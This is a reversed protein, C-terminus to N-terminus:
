GVWGGGINSFDSIKKKQFGERIICILGVGVYVLLFELIHIIVARLDIVKAQFM